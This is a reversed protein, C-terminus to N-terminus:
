AAVNLHEVAHSAHAAAHAPQLTQKAAASAKAAAAAAAHLRRCLGVGLHATHSPGDSGGRSLRPLRVAVRVAVRVAAVLALRLLHVHVSVVAAAVIVAVGLVAVHVLVAVSNPGLSNPGLPEVSNPGLNPVSLSHHELSQVGEAICGIESADTIADYRGRKGKYGGADWDWVHVARAEAYM